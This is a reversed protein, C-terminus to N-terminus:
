CAPADGTETRDIDGGPHFEDFIRRATVPNMKVLLPPTQVRSEDKACRKAAIVSSLRVGLIREPRGACLQLECASRAGALRFFAPRFMSSGFWLLGLVMLAVVYAAIVVALTGAFVAISAPVTLAAGIGYLLASVQGRSMGILELHHHLPSAVFPLPFESYHVTERDPGGLFAFRRCLPVLIKAQVLSSLGELLYVGAVIPLVLDIGVALASGVMLAGIALAGSDGLYAKALRRSTGGKTWNSPLNFLLFGLCAGTLAVIAPGGARNVGAAAAMSGAGLVALGTTLGDIGDSFGAGITVTLLLAAIWLFMLVSGVAGSGIWHSLSLPSGANAEVYSVLISAGVLSGALAQLFSTRESFGAGSGSRSKLVDDIFGLVFFMLGAILVPWPVEGGLASAVAFAGGVAIFIAAGGVLPLRTSAGAGPRYLGQKSEVSIFRPFARLGIATFAVALAFASGGIAVLDLSDRTLTISSRSSNGDAPRRM